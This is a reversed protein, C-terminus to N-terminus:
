ICQGTNKSNLRTSGYNTQIKTTVKSCYNFCASTASSTSGRIFFKCCLPYREIFSLVVRGLYQINYRYM